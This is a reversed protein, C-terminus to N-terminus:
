DTLLENPVDNAEDVDSLVPLTEYHLGLCNCEDIANQLVNNTSWSKNKFFSPHLKKMGLLYYGGDKAPGIVIDNKQLFSFAQDIILTSLEYCDSGIISVSDYGKALVLEFANCMRDGLDGSGQANKFYDPRQWLDNEVINETYFVFKDAKVAKTIQLTHQLLKKYISLATDNGLVAALRTKVKGPEPHRVFILLAQKM